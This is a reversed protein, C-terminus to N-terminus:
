FRALLRLRDVEQPSGPAPVVSVSSGMSDFAQEDLGAGWLSNARTWWDGAAGGNPSLAAVEIEGGSLLLALVVLNATYSACAAVVDPPVPAYAQYRGFARSRAQALLAVAAALMETRRAEPFRAALGAAFDIIPRRLTLPQYSLMARLLSDDPAEHLSPDSRRRAHDRAYSDLLLLAREAILFEGFTAHLFEYTRRPDATHEDVRSVHVFFFGAVTQHARGSPSDFGRAVGDDRGLFVELDRELDRDSVHQRGRNFMGFAAISLRWRLEGLLRPLQDDSPPREPKDAVQRHIFNDLLMRYLTATSLKGDSLRAANPDAHYIGLLTLLLPQRAIQGHRSMDAVTLAAFGPTRTNAKNWAETWQGIQADSFEELKIVLAGEPVRARDVVITRSTVIVAVSRGLALEEAQFRTVETLYSSQTTGTAQVLEDFGDLLVVRTVEACEEALDGWSVREHLIDRLASEVQDLLPDGATVRRLQVPVVAYRESPLRAALIETLLSKGAGPHGLVLLPRRAADPHALYGALFVDLEDDVPREAWWREQSMEGASTASAVAVRFRPTVFGEAVTPLSLGGPPKSSRLLPQDLVATAARALNARITGREPRPTRVGAALIDHLQGMSESARELVELLRANVRHLEDRTAARRGHSAWVFLEPVDAGISLYYDHYLERWRSTARAVAGPAVSSWPRLGEFFALAANALEAVRPALVDHLNEEFGLVPSPLPLVVDALRDIWGAQTMIEGPSRALRLKEEGDAELSEYIPGLTERLADFLATVAITTHTAAVLEYRYRGRASRLLVLTPALLDRLLRGPEAGLAPPHVIAGLLVGTRAAQRLVETAPSDPGLLTLAGEYSLPNAKAM